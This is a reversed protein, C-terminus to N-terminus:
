NKKFIIAFFLIIMKLLILLGDKFANVKKKGGIRKLEYCPYDTYKLKFNHVKIPLEVCIRFDRSKLNINRALKTEGIVFTYLIDSIKLKFFIKGILSFFKNGIFTIFDDDESGAGKLYRSGFIFSNVKTLKIMKSIENPDMSGDANIICFYKTPIKNIGEILANGYGTKKSIYIKTDKATKIIKKYNTKDNKDVILLKKYGYKNLKKIFIGLSEKEKKVPILLTLKKIM